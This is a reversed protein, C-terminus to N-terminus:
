GRLSGLHSRYWDVTSALGDELDIQANWGLQTLKAVDLLKQDMGDPRSPDWTTRGEFGVVRAIKEALERITLDRGTGINVQEPGDYHELLFVCADALDDVHMFERRPRGTGWNMVDDAGSRVADDYRRILAPLVHSRVPSFNDQPGYVNTPMASIWARGYQRRVSQVHLIGAIKAIAYSSNTPELQGTLLDDEKMPQAADKPYICSSGLFLLRDVGHELAADMVNVQIQLNESLFEVPHTDNAMIGGVRAAALVVVQPRSEAFFDFTAARDTLDLEASAKGVLDHCGQASLHRWLASGVLGRHGAVYITADRDFLNM